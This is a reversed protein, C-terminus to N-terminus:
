KESEELLCWAQLDGENDTAKKLMTFTMKMLSTCNKNSGKRCWGAIHSAPRAARGVHEPKERAVNRKGRAEKRAVSPNKVVDKGSKGGQYGKENWSQGKWFEMKRQQNEQQLALDVFRQDGEERASDGDGEAAMGIEMPASTDIKRNRATPVTAVKDIINNERAVLLESYSITTGRFRCNSPSQPMMKKITLMKEEDSTTGFRNEFKNTENIFTRLIDDFQEVHKARDRQSINSILAAYASNNGSMNRQDCRTVVAHWAEFGKPGKTQQVTRLPENATTRHLVQYLSSEISRFEEDSCDM